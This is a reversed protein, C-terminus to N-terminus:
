SGRRAEHELLVGERDEASMESLVKAIQDDIARQGVEYGLANWMVVGLKCRTAYRLPIRMETV